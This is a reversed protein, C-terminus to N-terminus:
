NRMSASVASRSASVPPQNEFCSGFLDQAAVVDVDRLFVKLSLGAMACLMLRDINRESAPLGLDALIASRLTVFDLIEEDCPASTAIHALARKFSRYLWPAHHM